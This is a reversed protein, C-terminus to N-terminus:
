KGLYINKFETNYYERNTTTKEKSYKELMFYNSHLEIYTEKPVEIKEDSIINYIYSNNEDKYELFVSNPSYNIVNDILITNNKVDYLKHQKHNAFYM